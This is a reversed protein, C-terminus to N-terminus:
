TTAQEDSAAGDSSETAPANLEREADARVEALSGLNTLKPWIRGVGLTVVLAGIGGSVVSGVPGLWAATLGSEVGGLDNSAAIFVQNVANVRGRMADPTSTQVLSHRIVVSINDAAGLIALLVLSLWFSTSLGFGITALSFVAVSMLLARGLRPHAPSHAQIIAMTCAGIAPAARLLGYGIPTAQLREAFMPLLYTAGGLLVALMDLTMSALLVERRFVFALGAWLSQWGPVEAHPAVPPDPLPLTLCFAIAAFAAATFYALEVGQTLLFGGLAPGTWSATEFLSSIWTFANAFLLPPVLNTVLAARAPRAFTLAVGNLTILLYAPWVHPSNRDWRSWIGLLLPVTILVLQTTLLVRRRSCRDAVQGAPLALLMAPIACCLGLNAASLPSDTRRFLDWQITTLLVQTALVAQVYGAAYLCFAPIRFAAYPDLPESVSEPLQAPDPQHSSGADAPTDSSPVNM